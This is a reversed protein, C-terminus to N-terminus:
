HFSALAVSKAGLAQALDYMAQNTIKHYDGDLKPSFKADIANMTEVHIGHTVLHDLMTGTNFTGNGAGVTVLRAALTKGSLDAPPTPFKVGAKVATAAAHQVAFDFVAIWNGVAEKGYQKTLKDVEGNTLDPGVMATLAKAISFDAAGGGATVLAATADLDPAGTYVPGDAGPPLGHMPMSSMSGMSDPAPSSQALGAIPSAMLAAAALFPVLSKKFM